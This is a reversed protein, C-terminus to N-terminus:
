AEVEYDLGELPMAFGDRGEEGQLRIRAMLDEIYLELCRGSFLCLHYNFHTVYYVLM